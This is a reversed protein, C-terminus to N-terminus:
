PIIDETRGGTLVDVHFDYIGVSRKGEFNVQDREGHNAEPSEDSLFNQVCPVPRELIVKRNRWQAERGDFFSPYILYVGIMRNRKFAHIYSRKKKSKRLEGLKM